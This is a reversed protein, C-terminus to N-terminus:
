GGRSRPLSVCRPILAIGRLRNMTRQLIAADTVVDEGEARRSVRRMWDITANGFSSNSQEATKDIPLITCFM